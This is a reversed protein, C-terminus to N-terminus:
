VSIYVTHKNALSLNFWLILSYLLYFPFSDGFCWGSPIMPHMISSGKWKSWNIKIRLQTCRRFYSFFFNSDVVVDVIFAIFFSFFVVLHLWAGYSSFSVSLECLFISKWNLLNEGKITQWLFICKEWNSQFNLPVPLFLYVSNAFTKVISIAVIVCVCLSIWLLKKILFLKWVYYFTSFFTALITILTDASQM